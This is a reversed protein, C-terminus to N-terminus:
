YLLFCNFLSINKDFYPKDTQKNTYCYVCQPLGPVPRETQPGRQRHRKREKKREKKREHREIETDKWKYIISM